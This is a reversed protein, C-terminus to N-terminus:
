SGVWRALRGDLGREGVPGAIEIVRRDPDDPTGATPEPSRLTVTFREVPLLGEIRDGWEIATVGTEVLDDLDLDAADAEGELRYADLHHLTLRGRYRNALAFTPSTIPEAVGLGAGLGQAFCTKGAGLEGTLVLVDGVALVEAMAEAIARTQGPGDSVLRLTRRRDPPAIAPNSSV